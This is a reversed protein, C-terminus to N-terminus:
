SEWKLEKKMKLHSKIFLFIKIYWNYRLLAPFQKLIFLFFIAFALHRVRPRSQPPAWASSGPNSMMGGQVPGLLGGSLDRDAARRSSTPM